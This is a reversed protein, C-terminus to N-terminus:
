GLQGRPALSTPQQWLDQLASLGSFGAGVGSGRARRRCTAPLLPGPTRSGDERRGGDGRVRGGQSRQRGTAAACEGRRLGPRGDEGRPDDGGAARAKGAQFGLGACTGGPRRAPDGVTREERTAPAPRAHSVEGQGIPPRSSELSCCRWGVLSRLLRAGGVLGRGRSRPTGPSHPRGQCGGPGVGRPRAPRLSRMRWPTREALPFTLSFPFFCSGFADPGVERAGAHEAGQASEAPKCTAPEDRGWPM